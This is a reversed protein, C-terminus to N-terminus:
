GDGLENMVDRAKGEVRAVLQDLTETARAAIDPDSAVDPHLLTNQLGDIAKNAIAGLPGAAVAPLLLPAATQGIDILTNALAKIDFGAM